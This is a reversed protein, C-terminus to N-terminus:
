RGRWREGEMGREGDGGREAGRRYGERGGKEGLQLLPQMQQYCTGVSTPLTRQEPDQTAEPRDISPDKVFRRWVAHEVDGLPVRGEAQGRCCQSSSLGM